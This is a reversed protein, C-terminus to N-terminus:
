YPASMPHLSGILTNAAVWAKMEWREVDNDESVPHSLLEEVPRQQGGCLSACLSLLTGPARLAHPLLRCRRSVKLPNYNAPDDLNEFFCAPRVISYPM